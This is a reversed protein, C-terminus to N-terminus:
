QTLATGPFTGLSFLISGYDALNEGLEALGPRLRLQASLEIFFSELLQNAGSFMWPNFELIAVEAIDFEPRALNFFSTKGSGWPGLVGVVVGESADLGLVQRAFSRAASTRGLTDDESQRIPNDGRVKTRTPGPDVGINRVRGPTETAPQERFRRLIYQLM